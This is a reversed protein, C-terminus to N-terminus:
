LRKMVKTARHQVRELVDLDRKSQPHLHTDKSGLGVLLKTSFHKCTSLGDTHNGTGTMNTFLHHSSGRHDIICNNENGLQPPLLAVQRMENYERIEKENGWTFNPSAM